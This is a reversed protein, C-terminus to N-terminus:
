SLPPRRPPFYATLVSGAPLRDLVVGGGGGEHFFNAVAEELEEAVTVQVETWDM